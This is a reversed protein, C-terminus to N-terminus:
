RMSEVLDRDREVADLFSPYRPEWGTSRLKANSIAKNTWGRKGGTPATEPALPIGFHGSLWEYCERMTLPRSDSVHFIEGNWTSSPGDVLHRIASVIDDRHVQNLFRSPEGSEISAEGAFLRQLNISRGPGYIGSLRLVCGGTALAIEEAAVLIRATEREPQAPSDETVTSGDTQGYVGTSSTFLLPVGPFADALNRAGGEYVSRYADAGGGRSSSACHIILDPLTGVGRSSAFAFVTARNSVDLSVNACGPVPEGSRSAAVVNHGISALAGALPSGTYGPGILLINM